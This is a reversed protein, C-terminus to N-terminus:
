DFRQMVGYVYPKREVYVIADTVFTNAKYGNDYSIESVSTKCGNFQAFEDTEFTRVAEVGRTDDFEDDSDGDHGFELKLTTAGAFPGWTLVSVGDGITIELPGGQGELVPTKQGDNAALLNGDKDTLKLTVSQSNSSIAKGYVVITTSKVIDITVTQKNKVVPEALPQLNTLVSVEANNVDNRALYNPSDDKISTQNLVGKLSLTRLLTKMDAPTRNGYLQILYAILGSVHPAAMSTGSYRKTQKDSDIFASWIWEGPAWIDIGSGYNSEENDGIWRGDNIDSAGVTIAVPVRAPTTGSVDQGANGAAIVVHVGAKYLSNVAIDIASKAPDKEDDSASWGWSINVISPRGSAKVQDWVWELGKIRNVGTMKVDRIQRLPSILRVHKAVGYRGGGIIGAVHTGHGYTLSSESDLNIGVEARGRFENQAFTLILSGFGKLLTLRIILSSSLHYSLLLYMGTDVVYVDVPPLNFFHHYTADATTMNGRDLKDVSIRRIGWSADRQEAAFEANGTLGDEAISKIDPSYVLIGLATPHFEGIYGHLFDSDFDHIVGELSNSPQVENAVWKFHDDKSVNDHLLVIYHNPRQTTHTQIKIPTQRSM